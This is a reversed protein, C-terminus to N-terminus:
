RFRFGGAGDFRNNVVNNYISGFRLSFGVSFGYTFDTGRQSLRLLIEEDSLEAASLYIQDNVWAVDGDANLDLGRVVRFSLRGRLSVRRQSFDHLFHSAELDISAEGWPQRQSLEITLAEEWRTESLEGHITEEIYNRYAPGIKYFLTLARRTAEDYPFFSYEVAPTVEVRLDQNYRTLRGSETQLGVSLHEAIAYVTLTNVSWDTRRDIFISGDSKEIEQRNFNVRGFFNLKWTPTVRNASFSSGLRVEKQTSEGEIDTDGRLRFAWLNWPDDVESAAVLRDGAADGREAGELRVIGRFGAAVAFHALGVGLAHAIGDLEERETDTSLAQYSIEDEYGEFRGNGLLDILFERGGAGTGQSTMIIHVDADARDRVWDVWGIETRYYDDGCRPGDCDFFVKPRGGGDSPPAQASAPTALPACTLLALLIYGLPNPM